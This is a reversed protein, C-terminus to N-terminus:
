IVNQNLELRYARVIRENAIFLLGYCFLIIYCFVMFPSILLNALNELSSFRALYLSIGIYNTFVFIFTILYRADSWRTQVM